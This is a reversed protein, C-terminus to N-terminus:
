LDIKNRISLSFKPKRENELRNGNFACYFYIVNNIDTNNIFIAWFSKFMLLTIGIIGEIDKYMYSALIENTTPDLQDLSCPTVELM